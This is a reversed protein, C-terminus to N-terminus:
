KKKFRDYYIHGKSIEGSFDWKRQQYDEVADKIYHQKYIDDDDIKFFLDYDHWNVQEIAAMHNRHHTSSPGYAVFLKNNKKINIDTLLEIYNHQDESSEFEPSNLYVVHHLDFSQFQLQLICHRLYIPRKSSATFCLVKLSKSM